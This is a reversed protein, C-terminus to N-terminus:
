DEGADQPPIWIRTSISGREDFRTVHALREEQRRRRPRAGKLTMASASETMSPSKPISPMRLGHEVGGADAPRGHRRRPVARSPAQRWFDSPIWAYSGRLAKVM